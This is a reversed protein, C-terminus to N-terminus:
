SEKPRGGVLERLGFVLAALGLMAAAVFVLLVTTTFPGPGPPVALATSALPQLLDRLHHTLSLRSLQTPISGVGIEVISGYSMGVVLYRATLTGCLVGFATFVGIALVQALLLLPLAALLGPVQRYAGVGLLVGLALLYSAQLGATHATYKFVLFAPRPLPRTFVYDVTEPKLDDRITGGGSIFAMVPLLLTLYRITWEFFVSAEATRVSTLTLLAFGALLAALKLLQGPRAFGPLTLRWVGGFGHRLSRTFPATRIAPPNM